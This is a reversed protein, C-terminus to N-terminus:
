PLAIPMPKSVPWQLQKSDLNVGDLQLAAAPQVAADNWLVRADALELADLTVHWAGAEAGTSPASAGSAPSVPAAASSKPAALGLLNIRGSADRAAHVQASEIRLTGLAIQRKLPQVDRLALQLKAWEFLPAGASDSIALNRAGVNGQVSVSPAGSPPVSFNVGLDAFVSGQTLRVPISEPVYGLYPKIDLDAMALKLTGAKTQAFPTAQAGSDFSAGNLKFALHPEVKIEVEAPLSSAFPLALHMAELRHTRKVPRDDFTVVGDRLELNYLAFRAPESSPKPDPKPTFRQILDDIDYHGEGTRALHVKPADIRLAEIVPAFRVLSSLSTDVLVRKVELLPPDGPARGAIALDDLTLSMAWPKFNVEGLTVTRGLAEGLKPPLQWKVVAPVALWTVVWLLLVVGLAWGLRKLWVV